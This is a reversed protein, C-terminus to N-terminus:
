LQDLLRGVMFDILNEMTAPHQYFGPMAPMIITGMEALRLMNALHIRNLPTERPVLILRRGEKLHIDARRELLNQSAGNAIASLTAMSCPLVLMPGSPYSGSALPSSWDDLGHCWLRGPNEGIWFRELTNQITTPDGGPDFDLESRMVERGASTIMLHVPIQKEALVELLRRAYLAGSAGTIGLVLANPDNFEPIGAM